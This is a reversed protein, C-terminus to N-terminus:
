ESCFAFVGSPHICSVSSGDPCLKPETTCAISEAGKWIGRRNDMAEQYAEKFLDAYKVNPPEVKPVTYGYRISDLNVFWYKKGNRIVTTRDYLSKGEPFPIYVYALLRGEKDRKQEDFELEVTKEGFEAWASLLLRSILRNGDNAKWYVTQIDEGTLEAYKKARELPFIAGPIDMGILRVIEGNTLELTISDIVQKVTYTQAFVNNVFFMM